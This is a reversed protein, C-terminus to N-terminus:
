IRETQITKPNERKVSHGYLNKNAGYALVTVTKLKCHFM